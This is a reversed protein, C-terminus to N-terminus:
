VESFQAAGAAISFAPDGNMVPYNISFPGIYLMNGGAAQDMVAAAVLTGWNATPAGWTWAVGNTKIGGVAAPFNVANNTVALRAYSGGAVEVGGSGDAAPAATFLAIYVTAPRAYDAGGLIHDLIKNALYTSKYGAM